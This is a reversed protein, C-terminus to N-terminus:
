LSAAALKSVRRIIQELVKPDLKSRLLPAHKRTRSGKMSSGDLVGIARLIPFVIPTILERLRELELTLPSEPNLIGKALADVQHRGLEAPKEPFSDLLRGPSISLALALRELTKLTCDRKGSELDVLNPRFMGAQEALAAQSLGRSMRWSKLHAPFDM